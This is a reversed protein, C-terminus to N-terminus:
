NSPLILSAIEEAALMPAAHGGPVLRDLGGLTHPKGVVQDRDGWLFVAPTAPIEFPERGCAPLDRMLKKLCDLPQAAIESAWLGAYPHRRGKFGLWIVLWHLMWGRLFPDGVKNPFVRDLLRFMGLIASAHWRLRLPCLFISRDVREPYCRLYEQLVRAGMSYGLISWREIGLQARLDELLAASAPYFPVEMPLAASGGHGPLEVIILKYYSTLLPELNQWISYTVGMGHLLLLPPGDGTIRYSLSM